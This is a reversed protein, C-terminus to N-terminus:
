ALYSILALGAVSMIKREVLKFIAYNIEDDCNITGHLLKLEIGYSQVVRIANTMEQLYKTDHIDEQKRVRLEM